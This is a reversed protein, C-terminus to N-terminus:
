PPPAAGHRELVGSGQWPTTRSDFLLRGSHDFQCWLEYELGQEDRLYARFSEGAPISLRVQRDFTFPPGNSKLRGNQFQVVIRETGMASLLQPGLQERAVYSTLRWHGELRKDLAIVAQM